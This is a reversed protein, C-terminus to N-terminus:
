QVYISGTAIRITRTTSGSTVNLSGDTLLTTGATEASCACSYPLGDSRFDVCYAGVTTGSGATGERLADSDAVLRIQWSSSSSCFRVSANRRIAEMRATQLGGLVENVQSSARNREFMENLSPVGVGLLIAVLALAVMLEVLTFGLSSARASRPLYKFLTPNM